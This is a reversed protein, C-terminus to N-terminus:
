KGLITYNGNVDVGLNFISLLSELNEVFSGLPVSKSSFNKVSIMQYPKDNFWLTILYDTKMNSKQVWIKKLM